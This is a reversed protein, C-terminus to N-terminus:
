HGDLLCPHNISCNAYAVSLDRLHELATCISLVDEWTEFLNRSLDLDRIKLRLSLIENEQSTRWQQSVCISLDDLIVTELQQFDQLHSQIKKFGVEEVTKGSIQIADNAVEALAYKQKLAELFSAPRDPKRSPRIFSGASPSTSQGVM